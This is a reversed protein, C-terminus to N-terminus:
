CEDEDDKRRFSDSGVESKDRNLILVVFFLSEYIMFRSSFNVVVFLQYVLLACFAAFFTVNLPDKKKNLLFDKVTVPIYYYRACFGILGCSVLTELYNNCTSKGYKALFYGSGYGCMIHRKYKKLGIILNSGWKVLYHRFGGGYMASMHKGAPGEHLSPIFYILMATLFLGFGILVCTLITGKSKGYFVAYILLFSLLLLFGIKAGSLLSMLFFFASLAYIRKNEYRDAAILSFLFSFALQVSFTEASTKFHHGLLQMKIYNHSFPKSLGLSLVQPWSLILIGVCLLLGTLIIFAELKEYSDEIIFFSIMVLMVMSNLLISKLSKTTVEPKKPMEALWFWLQVYAFYLLGKESPTVAYKHERIMYYILFLRSLLMCLKSTKSGTFLGETFFFLLAAIWFFRNRAHILSNM